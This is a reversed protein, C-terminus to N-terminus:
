GGTPGFHINEVPFGDFTHADDDRNGAGTHFLGVQTVQAHGPTGEAFGSAARLDGDARAHISISLLERGPLRFRGSSIQLLDPMPAGPATSVLVVTLLSQGLAPEAGALVDPARTRIATSAPIAHALEASRHEGLEM